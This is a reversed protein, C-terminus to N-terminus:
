FKSLLNCLFEHYTISIYKLKIIMKIIKCFLHHWKSKPFFFQIFQYKRRKLLLVQVPFLSKAPIKQIKNNILINNAFNQMLNYCILCLNHWAKSFKLWFPRQFGLTSSRGKDTRWLNCAIKQMTFVGIEISKKWHRHCYKAIGSFVKLIRLM